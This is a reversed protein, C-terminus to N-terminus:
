HELVGDMADIIVCEGKPFVRREDFIVNGFVDDQGFGQVRGQLMQHLRHSSPTREIYLTISPTWNSCSDIHLHGNM